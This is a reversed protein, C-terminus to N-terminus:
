QTNAGDTPEGNNDYSNAPSYKIVGVILAISAFLFIWAGTGAANITNGFLNASKSSIYVFTFFVSLISCTLGWVREIPQNKFLMLLPYVWLGLFLFSGQSLGSQSLFGVDVWNMLMSVIAVCGAVFIVKGGSNWGEWNFDM